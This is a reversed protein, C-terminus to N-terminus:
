IGTKIITIDNAAKAQRENFETELQTLKDQM